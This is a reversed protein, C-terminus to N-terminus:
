KSPTWKFQQTEFQGDPNEYEVFIDYPQGADFDEDFIVHYEGESFQMVDFDVSPEFHIQEAFVAASENFYAPTTIKFYSRGDIVSHPVLQFDAQAPAQEVTGLQMAVVSLVIVLSAASGLSALRHARFWRAVGKPKEIERELKEWLLAKSQSLDVDDVARKQFDPKKPPFPKM